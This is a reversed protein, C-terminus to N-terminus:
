VWIYKIGEKERSLLLALALATLFVGIFLFAKRIDNVGLRKTIDEVVFIGIIGFLLVRMFVIHLKERRIIKHIEEHKKPEALKLNDSYNNDKNKDMHHVQYDGFRLSYKERDKSYIYKFAIWRHYLRGKNKGNKFRWYGKNDIDFEEKKM